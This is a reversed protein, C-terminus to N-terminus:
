TSIAGLPAARPLSKLGFWGKARPIVQRTRFWGRADPSKSIFNGEKTFFNFQHLHLCIFCGFMIMFDTIGPGPRLMVDGRAPGQYEPNMPWCHFEPAARTQGPIMMLGSWGCLGPSQVRAREASVRPWSDRSKHWSKAFMLVWDTSLSHVGRRM